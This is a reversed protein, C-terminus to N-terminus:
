YGGGGRNGGTGRGMNGGPRPTAGRQPQPTSEASGVRSNRNRSTIDAPRPRDKREISTRGSRIQSNFMYEPQIGSRYTRDADRVVKQVRKSIRTKLKSSKGPSTTNGRIIFYENYIPLDLTEPYTGLLMPNRYRVLRCLTTSRDVINSWVDPTVARWSPTKMNTDNNSMSHGVYAQLEVLQGHM